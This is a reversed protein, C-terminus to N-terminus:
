PNGTLTLTGSGICNDIGLPSSILVMKRFTAFHAFEEGSLEFRLPTWHQGNCVGIYNEGDEDPSMAAFVLRTLLLTAGHATRTLEAAVGAGAQSASTMHSGGPFEASASARLTSVTFECRDGVKMATSCNVGSGAVPRYVAESHHTENHRTAVVQIKADVTVQFSLQGAGVQLDISDVEPDGVQRSGRLYSFALRIQGGADSHPATYVFRGSGDSGVVVPSPAVDGTTAGLEVNAGADTVGDCDMLTFSIERREGPQLKLPRRESPALRVQLEPAIAHDAPHEARQQKEFNLILDALSQTGSETWRLNLAAMQAQFPADRPDAFAPQIRKLVVVRDKGRVLYAQMRFGDVDRDLTGYAFYDLGPAGWFGARTQPQNNGPMREPLYEPQICANPQNDALFQRVFAESVQQRNVALDQFRVEVGYVGIVRAHTDAAKVYRASAAWSAVLLFVGLSNKMRTPMYETSRTSAARTVSRLATLSGRPFTM